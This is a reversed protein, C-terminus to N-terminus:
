QFPKTLSCTTNLAKHYMQCSKHEIYSAPSKQGEFAECNFFVRISSWVTLSKAKRCTLRIKYLKEVAKLREELCADSWTFSKTRGVGSLSTYVKLTEKSTLSSSPFPFKLYDSHFSFLLFRKPFLVFSSEVHVVATNCSFENSRTKHASMSYIPLQEKSPLKRRQIRETFLYFSLIGEELSNRKVADNRKPISLPHRHLHSFVDKLFKVWVLNRSYICDLPKKQNKKFDLTNQILKFNLFHLRKETNLM